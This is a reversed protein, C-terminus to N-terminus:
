NWRSTMTLEDRIFDADEMEEIEKQIELDNLYQVVIFEAQEAVEMIVSYDYRQLNKVRNIALKCVREIKDASSNEDLHEEDILHYIQHKLEQLCDDFDYSRRIM